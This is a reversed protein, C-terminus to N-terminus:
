LGLLPMASILCSKHNQAFKFPLSLVSKLSTLKKVKERLFPWFTPLRRCETPHRCKPLNEDHRALVVLRAPVASVGGMYASRTQSSIGSSSWFTSSCCRWFPFLFSFKLRASFSLLTSLGGLGLLLLKSASMKMHAHMKVINKYLSVNIFACTIYSKPYNICAGKSKSKSYKKLALM